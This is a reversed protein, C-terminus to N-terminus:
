LREGCELRFNKLQINCDGGCIFMIKDKGCDVEKYNCEVAKGDFYLKGGFYELRKLYSILTAGKFKIYAEKLVWNKFFLVANDGIECRERETFRALVGDHKKIGGSLIELDLGVPKESIAVAAVDKSHTVSFYLPNGEIYPKGAPAKIIKFGARLRRTLIIRLKEDVNLNETLYIESM